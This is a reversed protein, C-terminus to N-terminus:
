APGAAKSENLHRVRTFALRRNVSQVARLKIPAGDVHVFSSRAIIAATTAAATTTAVATTATAATAAAAAAASSAAPLFWGFRVTYTSAGASAPAKKRGRNQLRIGVLVFPTAAAEARVM